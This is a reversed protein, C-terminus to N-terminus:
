ITYRVFHIHVCMNVMYMYIFETVEETLIRETEERNGSAAALEQQVRERAQKAEELEREMVQVHEEHERLSAVSEERSLETESVLKELERVQKERSVIDGQLQEQVCM